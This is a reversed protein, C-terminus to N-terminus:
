PVVQFNGNIDISVNITSSTIVRSTNSPDYATITCTYIGPCCSNCCFPGGCCTSHFQMPDDAVSANNIHTVYGNDSHYLQAPSSPDPKHYFKVDVPVQDLTVKSANTAVCRFAINKGSGSNYTSVNQDPFAINYNSSNLEALTTEESCSWLLLAFALTM